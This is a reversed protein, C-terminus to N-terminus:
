YWDLEKKVLCLLEARCSLSPNPITHKRTRAIPLSLAEYLVCLRVNQHSFRQLRKFSAGGWIAVGQRHTTAIYSGLPSWLVFLETWCNRKYVSEPLNRQADNWYIETEELYRIVFQDRGRRDVSWEYM